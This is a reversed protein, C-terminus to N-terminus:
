KQSGAKKAAPLVGGGRTRVKALFSNATAVEGADAVVYGGAKRSALVPANVESELDAAAERVAQIRSTRSSEPLLLVQNYTKPLKALLVDQDFLYDTSHPGCELFGVNAWRALIIRRLFTHKLGNSNQITNKLLNISTTPGVLM